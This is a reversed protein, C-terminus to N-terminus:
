QLTVLVEITGQGSDLSGMAKGIVAGVLRSRDTGKMAYGPASSTVLLDGRRIPGNEASVKTPVIGVMAMPIEQASKSLTERRGVVGPKTAFIGAVMTSYPKASKEVDGDAGSGLVLVDGPEYHKRDGSADVAEAYDGGCLVGTWATTQSTGDPFIVGNMGPAGDVKINGNVELPQSPSTTGVGVNGGGPNLLLADKVTGYDIAQIYSLNNTKNNGIILTQDGTSTGTTLRLTNYTYGENLGTLSNNPGTIDLPAIPSTTGIGVNGNSLAFIGISGYPTVNSVQTSTVIMPTANITLGDFVTGNDANGGTSTIGIADYTVNNYTVHFLGTVFSSTSNVSNVVFYESQYASKSSVLLVDTRNGSSSSGRSLTLRGQVESDPVNGSTYAKAFLIYGGYTGDAVPSMTMNYGTYETFSGTTIVSTQGTLNVNALTLIIGLSLKIQRKM